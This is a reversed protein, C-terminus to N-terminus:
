GDTAEETKHRFDVFRYGVGRETFIYRPHAPDPEIKKRLYTIYLRLYHAADRYEYGWVKSLLREHPVLWGANEILHYLLRFETPRLKVRKGGVIVERLNYDVSLYDDIKLLATGPAVGSNARRLLARIRSTLVQMSFPKSVYDDMGAQLCKERDGSMAHATMAVIPVRRGTSAEMERIARTAEYGDMEPMEVDMLVIDFSDTGLLSLAERGNNARVVHHGWKGLVAAAHEQNVPNDEVLLVKLGRRMERLSHRTILTGPRQDSRRVLAAAVAAHLEAAKVPKTLYGSIGLEQCRAADGRLGVSAMLIIIVDSFEPNQRIKEALGFGDNDPLSGDVLVLAYPRGDTLARRMAALAQKGSSVVTPNMRWATVMRAVADASSRCPDAILARMGQIGDSGALQVDTPRDEPQQFWATFHFTSGKGVESDVWMRGGMMAVLQTSIALGLGTGGFRRTTSADAQEFAGFIKQQKEPPIGIGTDSVTFHLCIREEQRSEVRVELAVKGHDTFKIANGILNTIIQRLRGPDGRLLGPLESHIEFTLELGKAEAEVALADIADQVCDRVSFDISVLDLRGAEIKSLDLIDNIVTLLSEASSKVTLLYKRQEETLDTDLALETMGIIGNMPTRIEHSMKAIFESKAKNAAEAMLRREKELRAHARESRCAVYGTAFYLLALAVILAWTVREHSSLPVSIDAKPAGVVLGYYRDGLRFPAYAVLEEAGGSDPRIEAAGPRSLYLCRRQVLRAVQGDMGTKGAAGQGGPAPGSSAGPGWRGVTYIVEGRSNVVWCASSRAAKARLFCKTFLKRLSVRCALMGVLAKGTQVPVFVELVRGKTYPDPPPQEVVALRGTRASQRYGPRDSLDQRDRSQPSQFAVKGQPDLMALMTVVDSHGQYYARLIEPASPRLSRLEPYESIAQLDRILSNSVEEVAGAISQAADTQYRQFNSVLEKEFKGHYLRLLFAFAFAAAGALMVSRAAHLGSLATRFWPGVRRSGRPQQKASDEQSRM